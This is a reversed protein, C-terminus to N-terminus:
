LFMRALEAGFKRGLEALEATMADGDHGPATAVRVEVDGNTAVWEHTVTDYAITAFNQLM